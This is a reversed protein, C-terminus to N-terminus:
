FLELRGHCGVGPGRLTDLLPSCAFDPMKEPRLPHQCSEVSGTPERVETGRPVGAPKVAPNPILGPTERGSHGDANGGWM